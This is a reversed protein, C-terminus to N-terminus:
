FCFEVFRFWRVVAWCVFRWSADILVFGVAFVVVLCVGIVFAFGVNILVLLVFM